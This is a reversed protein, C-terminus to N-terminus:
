AKYIEGLSAFLRPVLATFYYQPNVELKKLGIGHEGSGNGRVKISVVYTFITASLHKLHMRATSMKCLRGLPICRQGWVLWAYISVLIYKYEM